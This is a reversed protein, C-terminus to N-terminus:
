LLYRQVDLGSDQREPPKVAAIRQIFRPPQELYGEEFAVVHMTSFAQLLEGPNLLFDARSPKGVTENGVAFTEYILVGGPLLSRDIVPFLARWLYHTVVVADFQQVVEGTQLPWPANEIDACVARGFASVQSVADASRDIGTVVHGKAAFWKMHRGYGCAIDLVSGYGRVLHTWRKVWDSPDELGHLLRHAPPSSHGPDSAQEM